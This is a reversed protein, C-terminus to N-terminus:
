SQVCESIATGGTGSMVIMALFLPSITIGVVALFHVRGAPPPDDDDADRATRWALVAALLGTTALIAAVASVAVTLGDVPLGGSRGPANDHCRVIELWVGTIHQGAWAGPAALLGAWMLLDPTPRPLAPRM